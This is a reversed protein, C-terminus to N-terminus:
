VERNCLKEKGITQSFYTYINININILYKM